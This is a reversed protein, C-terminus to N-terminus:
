QICNPCPKFGSKEALKRSYAWFTKGAFNSCGYRHYLGTGDNEVLVVYTRLFDAAQRDTAATTLLTDYREQLTNLESQKDELSQSLKELENQQTTLDYQTQNAASEATNINEQLTKILDNKTSLEDNAAALKDALNDCETQLNALDAEQQAVAEERLQLAVRRSSDKLLCWGAFVLSALTLFALLAMGVRPKKHPAPAPPAAVSAKSRRVPAQLRGPPQTKPAAHAPADDTFDYPNLSCEACFLEGDAIPRGCKICTNM